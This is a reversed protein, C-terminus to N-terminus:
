SRAEHLRPRITGHAAQLLSASRNQCQKAKARRTWFSRTKGPSEKVSKESAPTDAATLQAHGARLRALQFAFLKGREHLDNWLVLRKQTARAKRARLIALLVAMLALPVLYMWGLFSDFLSSTNM